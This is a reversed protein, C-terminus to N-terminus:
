AGKGSKFLASLAKRIGTLFSSKRKHYLFSLKARQVYRNRYLFDAIRSYRLSHFLDAAVKSSMRKYILIKVNQSVTNAFRDKYVEDGRAFDLRRIGRELAYDFLYRLIVQGPSRKAYDVNFSTTYLYLTEGYEFAIYLALYEDELTLSFLRAIRDPNLASFFGRFFSRTKENEFLSPFPTLDRRRRHQAFLDELRELAEATDDYVNFHFEGQKRYWNVYTTINRKYYLKRAKEIDDLAMAPCLDSEIIRFPRGCQQLYAAIATAGFGEQRLQDLVIKSWRDREVFVVDLIATLADKRDHVAFIDGYDALPYGIFVLHKRSTIALPAAAILGSEERAVVTFLETQDRYINLWAKLWEFRLFPNDAESNQLAANWEPELANFDGFDTILRVEM